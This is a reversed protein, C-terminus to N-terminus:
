VFGLNVKQVDSLCQDWKFKSSYKEEESCICFTSTSLHLLLKFLPLINLLMEKAPRTLLASTGPRLCQLILQSFGIMSKCHVIM